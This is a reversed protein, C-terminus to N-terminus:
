YRENEKTQRQSPMKKGGPVRLLPVPKRLAIKRVYKTFINFHRCNFTKPTYILSQELNRYNPSSFYIGYHSTCYQIQFAQVISPFEHVSFGIQWHLQVNHAESGLHALIILIIIHTSTEVDLGKSHLVMPLGHWCQELELHRIAEPELLEM